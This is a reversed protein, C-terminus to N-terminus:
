VAYNWGVFSMLLGFGYGALVDEIFHKRLFVRSYGVTLVVLFCIIILGISQNQVYHLYGLSSYVFSIRAAHISPFSGADIKEFGDAFSQSNPRPKHWLYKIGSCIFENVLFGGILVGWIQTKSLWFDGQTAFFSILLLLFPNGLATFDQIYEAFKRRKLPKNEM